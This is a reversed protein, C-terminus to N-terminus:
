RPADLDSDDDRAEEPLAIRRRSTPGIGLERMYAARTTRYQNLPSWLPSKTLGHQGKYTGMGIKREMWRIRVTLVVYDHLIERDIHGIPVNADRLDALLGVWVPSCQAQLDKSRFWLSWDPEEPDHPIPVPHVRNPMSIVRQDRLSGIQRVPGSM